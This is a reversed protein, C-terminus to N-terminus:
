LYSFAHLVDQSASNSAKGNVDVLGCQIRARQLALLLIAQAAAPSSAPDRGISPKVQQWGSRTLM